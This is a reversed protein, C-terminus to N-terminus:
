GKKPYADVADRIAQTVEQGDLQYIGISVNGKTLENRLAALVHGQNWSAVSNADLAKLVTPVQGRSLSRILDTKANMAPDDVTTNAPIEIYFHPPLGARDVLPGGGPLGMLTRYKGRSDATWGVNAHALGTITCKSVASLFDRVEKARANALIFQEAM